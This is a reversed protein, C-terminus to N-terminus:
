RRKRNGRGAHPSNRELASPRSGARGNGHGDGHSNPAFPNSTCHTDFIANVNTDANIDRNAHRHQISDANALYNCNRDSGPYGDRNGDAGRNANTDAASNTDGPARLPRM